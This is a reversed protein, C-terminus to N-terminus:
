SGQLDTTESERSVGEKNHFPGGSPPIRLQAGWFGAAVPNRSQEGCWRRQAYGPFAVRVAEVRRGERVMRRCLGLDSLVQCFHKRASALTGGTKTQNASQFLLLSM